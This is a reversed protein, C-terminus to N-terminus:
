REPTTPTLDIDLGTKEEIVIEIMEEFINDDEINLKKNIYSYAGLSLGFSLLAIGVYAM